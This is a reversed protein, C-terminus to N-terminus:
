ITGSNNYNYKSAAASSVFRRKRPTKNPTVPAEESAVPPEEAVEVVPTSEVTGVKIVPENSPTFLEELRNSVTGVIKEAMEVAPSPKEKKAEKEKKELEGAKEAMFALAAKIEDETSEAVGPLGLARAIQNITERNKRIEYVLERDREISDQEVQKVMGRHAPALDMMTKGAKVAVDKTVVAAKITAEKTVELAKSATQQTTSVSLFNELKVM